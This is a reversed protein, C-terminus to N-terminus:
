ESTEKLIDGKVSLYGAGIFASATRGYHGQLSWVLGTRVLKSYLRLVDAGNLEGSEYAIILSPIDSDDVM